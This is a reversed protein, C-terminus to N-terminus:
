LKWRYPRDCMILAALLFFPGALILMGGMIRDFSRDIDPWNADCHGLAMGYGMLGCVLWAVVFENM